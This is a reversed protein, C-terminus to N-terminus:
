RVMYFVEFWIPIDKVMGECVLKAFSYGNSTTETDEKAM